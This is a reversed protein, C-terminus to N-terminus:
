QEHRHSAPVRFTRVPQLALRPARPACNFRRRRRVVNTPSCATGTRNRPDRSTRANGSRADAGPGRTGGRRASGLEDLVREAHPAHLRAEPVGAFGPTVYRNELQISRDDEFHVILSHYVVSGPSVELETAITLDCPEAALLKVKAVHRHGRERIEDLINRVEMMTAQPKRSAVHTGAGPRRILMGEAALDRLAGHVTMRATGFLMALESESPVRHGEAWEGSEIKVVVFQKIREGLTRRAGAGQPLKFDRQKQARKTSGAM